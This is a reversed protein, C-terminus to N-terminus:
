GTESSDWKEGLKKSKERTFELGSDVSSVTASWVAGLVDKAKDLPEKPQESGM